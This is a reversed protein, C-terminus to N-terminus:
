AFSVSKKKKPKVAKTGTSSVDTFADDDGGDGGAKRKRKKRLSDKVGELKSKRESEKQEAEAKRAERIEEMQRARAMKSEIQGEKEAQVISLITNMSEKDDVFVKGKKKGPPKVVGVPTIKNLTPIGLEEETYVKKRHKKPMNAPNKGSVQVATAPGKRSRGGGGGGGGGGGSSSRSSPKSKSIGGGSKESRSPGANKNKMTRTRSPAM